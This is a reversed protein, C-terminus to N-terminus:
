TRTTELENNEIKLEKIFVKKDLDLSWIINQSVIKNGEKLWKWTDKGLFRPYCFNSCARRSMQLQTTKCGCAVCSGTLYCDVNMSSIRVEIQEKIYNPILFDFMSYYLYYVLHGQIFARINSATVKGKFKTTKM